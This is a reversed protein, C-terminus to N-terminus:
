FTWQRLLLYAVPSLLSTSEWWRMSLLLGHIAVWGVPFLIVEIMSTVNVVGLMSANSVKTRSSLSEVRCSWSSIKHLRASGSLVVLLMPVLLSIVSLPTLPIDSLLLFFAASVLCRGVVLCGGNPSYEVVASMTCSTLYISIVRLLMSSLLTVGKCKVACELLSHVGSTVVLFLSYPLVPPKVRLPSYTGECQIRFLVGVIVYVVKSSLSAIKQYAASEYGRVM